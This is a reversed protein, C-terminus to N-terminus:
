ADGDRETEEEQNDECGIESSEVAGGVSIAHVVIQAVVLEWDRAGGGVLLDTEFVTISGQELVGIGL